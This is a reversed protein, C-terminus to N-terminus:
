NDNRFYFLENIPTCDNGTKSRVTIIIKVLHLIYKSDWVIIAYFLFCMNYIYFSFHEPHLDYLLSTQICYNVIFTRLLNIKSIKDEIRAVSCNCRSFSYLIFNEWIIIFNQYSLYKWCFNYSNFPNKTGTSSLFLFTAFLIYLIM